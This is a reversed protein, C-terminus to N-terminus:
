PEGEVTVEQLASKKDKSRMKNKSSASPKTKAANEGSEYASDPHQASGIDDDAGDDEVEEDANKEQSEEATETNAVKSRLYDMDSLESMLAEKTAGSLLPMGVCGYM